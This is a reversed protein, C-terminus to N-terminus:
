LAGRSKMREFSARPNGMNFTQKDKQVSMLYGRIYHAQTYKYDDWAWGFTKGLLYRTKGM